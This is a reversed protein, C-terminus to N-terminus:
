QPGDRTSLAKEARTALTPYSEQAAMIRLCSNAKDSKARLAVQLVRRLRETESGRGAKCQKLVANARDRVEASRTELATARLAPIVVEGLSALRKSAAERVDFSPADLERISKKVDDHITGLYDRLSMELAAWDDDAARALRLMWYFRRMRSGILGDWPGREMACSGVSELYDVNPRGLDFVYVSGDGNGALVYRGGRSFTATSFDGMAAPFEYLVEGTALEWLQLRGSSIALILQSDPSVALAEVHDEKGGFYYLLEASDTSWVEFAPVPRSYPNERGIVLQHGGNAFDFRVVESMAFGQKPDGLQNIEAHVRLDKSAIIVVTSPVKASKLALLGAENSVALPAQDFAVQLDPTWSKSDRWNILNLKRNNDVAVLYSGVCGAAM